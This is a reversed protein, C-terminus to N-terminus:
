NCPKWRVYKKALAFAGEVAFGICVALLTLAILSPMDGWIKAEQMLGGLSRYTSALVEGSVTIKLGLSFVAGAQGLLEPAALPLYLKFVTRKKDPRYAEILEGYEGRITELSSLAAAYTAPFLVLLTVVVPAVAPPTWLLLMLIVAVTPVTRLLSVIPALFARVGKRQAAWTALAVGLLASFLFALLARLFTGAFARWFAGDILLRGAQAFADWFSPLVYDNGVAFYAVIWVLWIVAVSLLSFLINKGRETRMISRM